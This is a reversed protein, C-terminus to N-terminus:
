FNKGHKYPRTSNYHHKMMIHKGLDINEEVALDMIRIVADALEDEFSDKIKQEFNEKFNEDNIDMHSTIIKPTRKSEGKRIAEICESLETIVLALKTTIILNKSKTHIELKKDIMNCEAFSHGIQQFFKKDDWFGNKNALENAEFAVKDFDFKLNEM